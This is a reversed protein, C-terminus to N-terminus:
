RRKRRLFNRMNELRGEQKIRNAFMPNVKNLFKFDLKQFAQTIPGWLEQRDDGRNAISSIEKWRFDFDTYLYSGTM